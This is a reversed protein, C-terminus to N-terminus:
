QFTFRLDIHTKLASTLRKYAAYLHDQSNQKQKIWYTMRHRKIPANLGNINLTIRSLFTSIAM